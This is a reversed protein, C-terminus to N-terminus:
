DSQSGNVLLPHFQGHTEDAGAYHSYALLDDLLEQMRTVGGVVHPMLDSEGGRLRQTLGVVQGSLEEATGTLRERSQYPDAGEVVPIHMPNLLGNAFVTNRFWRLLTGRSITGIPQGEELIVVRRISVRCLFEYITRIPTDAEYCIVNPKMVERISQKWFDLSVLAAMLDKESLIGTLKGDDNVIPASNIRSRLFFEAAHAVPQSERLCAVVPTMVHRALIGRFLSGQREGDHLELEGSDTLSEFRVVRDRGSRKACLLAQDAQDVLQECNATDDHRQATGFSATISLTKAGVPIELANLFMRTREAWAAADKEQTEPLLICFEEGGFRCVCDTIRCNKGLVAGVAKLVIDGAPHGHLDNIRKFFDIDMMVCSLPRRFRRSRDWEKQMNEFFARRTPLGTLSDTLAARSLRQELALVRTGSRLRAFLESQNIPKVLFDDAGNELGQITEERSSRVSLFITYVYHPLRMERVRRCLELGDIQPMEWDTILFHPCDAEIAALAQNGDGAQRVEYGAKNLWLSLVRLMAPDDDVVLVKLGAPNLEVTDM